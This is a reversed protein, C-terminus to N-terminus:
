KVATFRVRGQRTTTTPVNEDEEIAQLQNTSANSGASDFIDIKTKATVVFFMSLSMLMNKNDRASGIGPSGFFFGGRRSKNINCCHM